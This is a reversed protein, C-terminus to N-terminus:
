QFNSGIVDNGAWFEIVLTELSASLRPERGIKDVFKSWKDKSIKWQDKFQKDNALIAAYRKPDTVVTTAGILIDCAAYIEDKSFGENILNEIASSTRSLHTQVIKDVYESPKALRDIFAAVENSMTIHKKPKGMMDRAERKDKLVNNEQQM